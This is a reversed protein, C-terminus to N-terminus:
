QHRQKRCWPFKYRLERRRPNNKAEERRRSRVSKPPGALPKLERRCRDRSRPSYSARGGRRPSLGLLLSSRYMYIIKISLFINGRGEDYRAALFSSARYVHERQLPETFVNGTWRSPLCTGEAVARYFRERPLAKTFVNWPCRRPIFTGPAVGRYVCERPCRSALWTGSAVAGYDRELPFPESVVNGSCRSPLIKGPAVARYVRERPSSETFGSCGRSTQHPGNGVLRPNCYASNGASPVLYDVHAAHSVAGYHIHSVTHNPTAETPM